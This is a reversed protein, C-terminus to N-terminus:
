PPANRFFDGWSVNPQELQAVEVSTYGTLWTTVQVVGERSRNKKEAKDGASSLTKCLANGNYGYPCSLVEECEPTMMGYATEPILEM